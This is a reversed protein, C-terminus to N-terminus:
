NHNHPNAMGMFQEFASQKQGNVGRKQISTIQRQVSRQISKLEDLRQQQNFTKIPLSVTSADASNPNTYLREYKTVM